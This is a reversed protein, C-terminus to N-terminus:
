RGFTHRTCRAVTSGFIENGVQRGIPKHSPKASSSHRRQAWLGKTASKWDKALRSPKGSSSQAANSRVRPSKEDTRAVGSRHQATVHM